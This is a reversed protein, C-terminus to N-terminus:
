GDLGALAELAAALANRGDPGLDEELRRQAAEWLPAAAELTQRGAPTLGLLRVRRDAADASAALLGRRALLAVNRVLTTRDLDLAEGLSGATAPELRSLARLLSYQAVGLGAPALAADYRRTLTRAARRLNACHCPSPPM